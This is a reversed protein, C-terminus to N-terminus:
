PQFLSLALNTQFINHHWFILFNEFFSPSMNFLLPALKFYGEAALDTIIYLITIMRKLGNFLIHIWFDM